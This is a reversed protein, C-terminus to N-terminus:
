RVILQSSIYSFQQLATKLNQNLHQIHQPITSFSDKLEYQYTSINGMLKDISSSLEHELNQCIKPLNNDVNKRQQEQKFSTSFFGWVAKAFSFALGLVTAGIVLWGVPNWITLLSASLVTSLLAAKNIGSDLKFSLDFQLNNLRAFNKYEQSLKKVEKLLENQTEEIDKALSALSQEIMETTNYEFVKVEEELLRNFYNKFDDNSVDKDIYKYIKQRVSSKFEDLLNNKQAKLRNTFNVFHNDISLQASKVKKQLDSEFLEYRQKLNNLDDANNDLLVKIKNLNSRKIKLDINGVINHELTYALSSLQSLEKLENQSFNELFKKQGKQRESFPELCQAQSYFAPLGAIVLTNKYHEGFNEKLITDIDELSKKEDPSTILERRLQRANTMQKNYITWVETQDNLYNKIRELTGENPRADKATVYFVAHAKQVARGIEQKVLDENGEIGPVDLFQIIQGNINLSYSVTDRTFDSRGDGIIQGDVYPRLKAKLQDFDDFWKQINMQQQTIKEKQINLDMLEQTKSELTSEIQSSIAQLARKKQHNLDMLEQTKNDLVGNIQSLLIQIEQEHQTHLSQEKQKKDLQYKDLQEQVSGIKKEEDLRKFIYLLKLWWSMESRKKVIKHELSIIERQKQEILHNYQEIIIKREEYFQEKVSNQQQQLADIKEQYQKTIYEIKEDSQEELVNRQQQLTDIKEQYLKEVDQQKIILQNEQEILQKLTVKNKEYEDETINFEQVLARYQEQQKVKEKEKLLIRLTEILTSKGANTEGFFAISFNKWEANSEFKDIAIDIEKQIDSLIQQAQKHVENELKANSQQLQELQQVINSIKEKVFNYVSSPNDVDLQSTLSM